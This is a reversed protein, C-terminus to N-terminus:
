ENLFDIWTYISEVIEPPIEHGGEFTQKSVNFGHDSLAQHCAVSKEISVVKDQEGHVVLAPFKALDKLGEEVDPPLDGGCAIVGRPSVIGSAALRFAMAVGQSFGLLFVRNPDFPHQEKLTEILQAMYAMNDQITYDRMHSTMWTFGPRGNNWYFQNVGQPAAVLFNRDPWEAFHKIFGKCSQGYGHFALLLAPLESGEGPAPTKIACYASYPVVLRGVYDGDEGAVQELSSTDM